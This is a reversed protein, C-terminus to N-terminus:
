SVCRPRELHQPICLTLQTGKESGRAIHLRAGITEARAQMIPLGFHKSSNGNGSKREFGRGNDRIVVDVCAEGAVLQVWAMSAAAHKRINTLAEQVIYYIETNTQPSFTRGLFRPSVDYEVPIQSLRSFRETLCRLAHELGDGLQDPQQLGGIFSRIDGSLNQTVEELMRLQELARNVEGKSLLIRIATAQSNMYAIDQAMSDHLLSAIREREAQILAFLEGPPAQMHPLSEFVPRLM